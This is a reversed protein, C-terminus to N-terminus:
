TNLNWRTSSLQYVLELLWATCCMHHIMGNDEDDVEIALVEAAHPQASLDPAPLNSKAAKRAREAIMARAERKRAAEKLQDQQIKEKRAKAQKEQARQIEVKAKDRQAAEAAIQRPCSPDRAKFFSTMVSGIKKQSAATRSDVEVAAKETSVVEISSANGSDPM